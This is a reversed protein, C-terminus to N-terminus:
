LLLLITYQIELIIDNEIVRFIFAKKVRTDIASKSCYESIWRTPMMTGEFLASLTKLCAIRSSIEDGTREGAIKVISSIIASNDPRSM